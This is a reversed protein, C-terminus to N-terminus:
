ECFTHKIQFILDGDTYEYIWFSFSDDEITELILKNADPFKNPKYFLFKKKKDTKAFLTEDIYAGCVFFLHERFEFCGQEDGIMVKEFGISEIQVIKTEGEIRINLSFMLGPRYYDCTLEHNVISDLIIALKENKIQILKLSDAKSSNEAYACLHWHPSFVICFM